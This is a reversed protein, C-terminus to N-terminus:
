ISAMGQANKGVGMGDLTFHQTVKASGQGGSVDLVTVAAPTTGNGPSLAYVFNGKAVLDILGPDGNASLDLMSIISADTLSMEVVRNVGVDTVFASGTVDSITVWCTASQGDIGQKAVLSAMNTTPDVSLVAGGFSADTVFVSSTGPIPKSGFLVATGSPSSRIDETALSATEKCGQSEVPFVSFFGTLNVAPDGKVTAFLSSEDESFFVQSVTNTPGVPPTVQDLGFSRLADMTGLGTNSFSSCSVGNLTGTTAVCALRNKASAAVTNPFEGPIAVPDGVVTLKTPDRPDISLMTLTNSGANVAFMNNGAITLSSQSILADPAAPENTDGNISNSGTGETPTLTGMSLTGDSAVPLAVVSNVPDNAIFYIAKPGTTHGPPGSPKGRHAAPAAFAALSFSAVLLISQSLTALM